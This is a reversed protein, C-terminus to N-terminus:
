FYLTRTKDLNFRSLLRRREGLLRSTVDGKGPCLTSSGRHALLITLIKPHLVPRFGGYVGAEPVSDQFPCHIFFKGASDGKFYGSIEIHRRSCHSPSGIKQFKWQYLTLKSQKAVARVLLDRFRSHGHGRNQLMAERFSGGIVTQGTFRGPGESVAQVDVLHLHAPCALGHLNLNLWALQACESAKPFCGRKGSRQTLSSNPDEFYM